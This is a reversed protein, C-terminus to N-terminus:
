RRDRGSTIFSGDRAWAFALVGGAHADLKKVESGGNMEWFRVRAMRPPPPSCTPTPASPPRPSAGGPPRAPHPIRQASDAEWVWVGGNRDGTALLVGDPSFDLATVWDTHKKISHLQSGDETELDQHLRSPSGTAVM